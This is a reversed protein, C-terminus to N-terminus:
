LAGKGPTRRQQESCWACLPGGRALTRSQLDTCWTSLPAGQTPNQETTWHTLRKISWGRQQEDTSAPRHSYLSYHHGWGRCTVRCYQRAEMQGAIGSFDGGECGRSGDRWLWCCGKAQFQEVTELSQSGAATGELPGANRDPTHIVVALFTQNENWKSQWLDATESEARFTEARVWVTARIYLSSAQKLEGM